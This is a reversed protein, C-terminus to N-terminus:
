YFLFAGAFMVGLAIPMIFIMYMFTIVCTKFFSLFYGQEYFNKIAFFLYFFTSFVILWNIWDPIGFILESLLIITLV